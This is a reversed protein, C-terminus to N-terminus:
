IDRYGCLDSRLTPTEFSINKNVSYYGNLLDNAKIWRRSIFKSATSNRLLKYIKQHVM